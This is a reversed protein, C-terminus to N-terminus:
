PYVPPMLPSVGQGSGQFSFGWSDSLLKIRRYPATEVLLVGWQWQGPALWPIGPLNVPLEVSPQRVPAALGLAATLPDRGSQWMVLEMAQNPGLSGGELRWRFTVVGAGSDGHNPSFLTVKLNASAAPSTALPRTALGPAPGGGPRSTATPAAATPAPTDLVVRTSTPAITPEATATEVLVGADTPVLTIPIATASARTPTDVATATAPPPAPTSTAVPAAPALTAPPLAPAVPQASPNPRLTVVGLEAALGVLSVILALAVSGIVLWKVVGGSSRRATKSKAPQASRAAKPKRTRRLAKKAAAMAEPDKAALLDAADTVAGHMDAASAWREERHIQVARQVLMQTAPQIDPASQRIPALAKDGSARDPASPPTVGTLLFYLTAGLSYLDSRADTIAQHSYQELPSYGPSVAHAGTRTHVDPLYEKAIGFDVLVLTEDQRLKLNSPKIDRHIIPPDQGHLYTLADLLEDAWRLALWEPQRGARRVLEELNDGPIYEMVLFDRQTDSFLDWVRPLSHHSLRQLYGAERRFQARAEPDALRALKVAVQRRHRADWALYVAGMGGRGLVRQVEYRGNLVTNTRIEDQLFPMGRATDPAQM